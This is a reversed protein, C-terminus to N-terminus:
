ILVPALLAFGLVSLTAVYRVLVNYTMMAVAGAGSM